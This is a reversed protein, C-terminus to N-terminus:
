LYRSATQEKPLGVIFSCGTNVKSKVSITGNLKDVLLKVIALGLGTSSEDGTPKASLRQFKKFLKSKDDESLGPGEDRVTMEIHSTNEKLSVFITKDRPSFKIANSVLNSVIRSLYSKDIELKTNEIDSSLKLKINKNSAEARFNDVIKKIFDASNVEEFFPKTRGEELASIDLLNNILTNGELTIKSILDVYEQQEGSLNGDQAILIALNNVTHLPSKLDHAVIAMLSNKETNLEELREKHATIEDRQKVLLLNASKIKRNSTYYYVAFLLILFSGALLSYNILNKRRIDVENLLADKKLIAIENEKQNIDYKSQAEIIQQSKEENYLSDKQISALGLFKYGSYFNNTASYLRSLLLYVNYMGEHNNLTEFIDKSENAYKFALPFNKLEAYVSAISNLSIAFGINNGAEKELALSELQAGLSKKYEKKVKYIEAMNSLSSAIGRKYGLEKELKLSKEHYQLSEDYKKQLQYVEGINNYAKALGLKDGIDEKIKLSKLYYELSKQYNEENKYVIGLNNLAKAIDIKNNLKERIELSKLFNDLAKAYDGQMSYVVGLNNLSQAEGSKYNLRSALEIGEKAFRISKVPDSSNLQWSLTNLLDVKLSDEKASKLAILLSDTENTNQACLVSSFILVTFLVKKM